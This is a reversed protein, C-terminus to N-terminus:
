GTFFELFCLSRWSDSVFSVPRNRTYHITRNLARGDVLRRAESDPRLRFVLLVTQAPAFFEPSRYHPLAGQARSSTRPYSKFIHHKRRVLCQLLGRLPSPYRNYAQLLITSPRRIRRPQEANDNPADHIRPIIFVVEILIFHRKYQFKYFFAPEQFLLRQVLAVGSAM